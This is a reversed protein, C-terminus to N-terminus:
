RHLALARAPQLRVALSGALLTAGVCLALAGAAVTAQLAWPMAVLSTEGIVPLAGRLRLLAVLREDVVTVIRGAVFLGFLTALTWLMLAELVYAVLVLANSAGFAKLIAIEPTKRQISQSFSLVLSVAALGGVVLIVALLIGRGLASIQLFLLALERSNSTVHLGRATVADAVAPVDSLEEVYISARAFQDDLALRPRWSPKAPEYWAISADTALPELRREFVPLVLQRWRAETWPEVRDIALWRRSDSREVMAVDVGRGEFFAAMEDLTADLAESPEIPGWYFGTLRPEPDWRRDQIARHFRESVLFDGAPTGHVVGVVEVPAAHDFYDLRLHEPYPATRGHGLADLLSIDVIVQGVGRDDVGGAEDRGTFRGDGALLDLRELLPDEPDVTRGHTLTDNERGDADVFWFTVDNWGHVATIPNADAITLAGLETLEDPKFVSTDSGFLSSVEVTRALPNSEVYGRLWGVTGLYLAGVLTTTIVLISLTVLNLATSVCSRLTGGLTRLRERTDRGYFSVPFLDRAAFLVVYLGLRTASGGIESASRTSPDAARSTPTSSM